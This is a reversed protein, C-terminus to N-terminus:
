EGKPKGCISCNGATNLSGSCICIDKVLDGYTRIGDNPLTRIGDNPLQHICYGEYKCYVYCSSSQAAYQCCKWDGSCTRM